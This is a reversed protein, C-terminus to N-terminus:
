RAFAEAHAAVLAEARAVAELDNVDIWPSAHEYAGVRAGSSLLRNVLDSAGVPEGRPIAALAVPGLVYVGSSVRVPLEPKERYAVLLGDEIEVAGFPIRFSEFHVATTLAAGTRRHHEVLAPLPLATLNDAYVVLLESDAPAIEAAAGINGLPRTEEFLRLGAGCRQALEQGRGGAFEGIEPTHAPVAVVLDRFGARLLAALNRELLPVGLIPVLPKPVSAGGARMREGHGGAM